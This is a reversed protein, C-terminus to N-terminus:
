LIIGLMKASEMLELRDQIQMKQYIISRQNIVTKESKGLLSSIEYTEKKQALLLFVEQEKKTLTKYNQFCTTVKDDQEKAFRKGKFLISHIISSAQRNYYNSGKSVILIAKELEDIDIDKTLYGHIDHALAKEIHIPDNHMTYVLIKVSQRIEKLRPILLLGDKGALNLDLIVESVDPNKELQEVAENENTATLFQLSPNKSSLVYALGDRLGAHDDIFLIKLISRL